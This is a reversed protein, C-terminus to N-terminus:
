VRAHAKLFPTLIAAFAAPAETCPLRGADAFLHFSFGPILDSTARVIAPPSADDQRGAIVRTPLRLRRTAETQDAGDLAACAATFGGKSSHPCLAAETSALRGSVRTDRFLTVKSNLLPGASRSLTDALPLSAAANWILPLTKPITM